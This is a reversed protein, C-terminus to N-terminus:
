YNNLEGYYVKNKTCAHTQGLHCETSIFKSIIVRDRWIWKLGENIVIECITSGQIIM